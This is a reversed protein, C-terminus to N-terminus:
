MEDLDDFSDYDVDEADEEFTEGVEDEELLPDTTESEETESGEYVDETESDVESSGSVEDLVDDDLAVEDDNLEEENETSEPTQAADDYLM